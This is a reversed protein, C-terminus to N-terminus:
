TYLSDGPRTIRFYLALLPVLALFLLFTVAAARNMDGGTWLAFSVLPLTANRPTSVFAALTLERMCLLVIFLWLRVVTPRLLPVLVRRFTEFRTAGSTAAAEELEPHIQVLNSNVMRTGLSLWAVLYILAILTVTGYLPLFPRLVFLALLSAAIAFLIGPIAHPLFAIADFVFRSRLKTRLVVYSFALSVGVVLVPVAGVLEATHLAGRRVLEWPIREFNVLSATRLSEATIPEAYPLLAIILTFTLPLVLAFVIYAGAFLWAAWAWRGLAVARPRYAKGTIVQYRGAKSLIRLYLASLLLAVIVMLGGGAGVLSYDPFGTVPFAASYIYTSFVYVRNSLGIIAPIDFTGLAMIATYIAAAALAPLLLPLNVRRMTTWYPAGSMAAADELTSDLSRLSPAVLIFVLPALAVGQVWGMGITNTVPLPAFDLHLANMLWVNIFGIRPHAFVLWGMGVLFGPIMLSSLMTLWILSRGPLDTREVLWALPLGFAFSVALATAAFVATNVLAVDFNPDTLLGAYNALGAFGALAGAEMRSFSMWIIFALLAVIWVSVTVVPVLLLLGPGLPAITTRLSRPPPTTAPPGLAVGSAVAGSRAM